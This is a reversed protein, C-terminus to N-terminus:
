SIDTLLFYFVAQLSRVDIVSFSSAGSNEKKLFLETSMWAYSTQLGKFHTKENVRSNCSFPMDTMVQERLQHWRTAVKYKDSTTMTKDCNGNVPWTPKIKPELLYLHQITQKEGLQRKTNNVAKTCTHVHVLSRVSVPRCDLTDWSTYNLLIDWLWVDESSNQQM